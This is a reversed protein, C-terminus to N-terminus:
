KEALEKLAKLAKPWMGNFQDENESDIDLDITLETGGDKETFTYNEFAPAWKMAAESTTDEVGNSVIGLHKISIFEYPRNEEIMSVMGGETGDGNPGLFLIKSGQEWTGKYYSGEHFAKTWERYTGDELMAGWVKEKPANIFVSYHVKHM